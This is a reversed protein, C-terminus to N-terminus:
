DSLILTFIRVILYFRPLLTRRNTRSFSGRRVFVTVIKEVASKVCEYLNTAPISVYFDHRSLRTLRKRGQTVVILRPLATNILFDPIVRLSRKKCAQWNFGERRLLLNSSTELYIISAYKFPSLTETTFTPIHHLLFQGNWSGVHM